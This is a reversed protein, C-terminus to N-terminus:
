TPKLVVLVVISVLALWVGRRLPRFAKGLRYEPAAAMRRLEGTFYGHVGGLLFALTLKVQMWRFHHWGVQYLMTLGIGWTLTIGLGSFWRDQRRLRQVLQQDEDSRPVPRDDLVEAFWSFATMGIVWLMVSLIHFSKLWGYLM